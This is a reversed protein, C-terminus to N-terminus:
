GAVGFCQDTHKCLATRAVVQCSQAAQWGKGYWSTSYVDLCAYDHGDQISYGHYSTTPAFGVDDLLTQVM